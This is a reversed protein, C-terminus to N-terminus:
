RADCDAQAQTEAAACDSASACDFHKPGLAYYALGANSEICIRLPEAATGCSAFAYCLATGAADTPPPAGLAPSASAAQAFRAQEEAGIPPSPHNGSGDACGLAFFISGALTTYRFWDM